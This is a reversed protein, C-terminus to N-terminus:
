RPVPHKLNRRMEALAELADVTDYKDEEYTRLRETIVQVEEDSVTVPGISANSM